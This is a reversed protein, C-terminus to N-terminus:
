NEGTGKILFDAKGVGSHFDGGHILISRVGLLHAVHLPRRSVVVEERSAAVFFDINPWKLAVNWYHLATMLSTYLRKTPWLFLMSNEESSSPCFIELELGPIHVCFFQDLFFVCFGLNAWNDRSSIRVIYNGAMAVRGVCNINPSCPPQLLNGTYLLM